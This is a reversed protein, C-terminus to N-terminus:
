ASAKGKLVKFIMLARRRYVTGLLLAYTAAGVIIALGLRLAPSAAPDLLAGSGLVALAMISTFATAPALARLYEALKMDTLQLVLQLYLPLVLLPHGVLWAVAVGTTGWRSGLIFLGPVVISAVVTRQMNRRTDGVAVAVQPLIPAISRTAAALALFQLPRIAPRWKEGFLLMVLDASVLALGVAMPFTILSLGETLM